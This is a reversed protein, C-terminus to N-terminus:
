NQTTMFADAAAASLLPLVDLMIVVARESEAAIPRVHSHIGCCCLMVHCM